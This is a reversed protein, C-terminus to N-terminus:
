TRATLRFDYEFPSTDAITVSPFEAHLPNILYNWGEGRVVASPVKLLLSSKGHAWSRGVEILQPNPHPLLWTPPLEAVTVTEISATDPIEYIVRCYHKPTSLRVLVELAALAVSEAAYIMPIGKPNWRGGYLRAGEGSLDAAFQQEAIRYLFM